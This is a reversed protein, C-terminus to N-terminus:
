RGAGLDVGRLDRRTTIGLKAFLSRLHAEVTRPSIFLEAVIEKSTAGTPRTAADRSGVLVAIPEADIRWSLLGLAQASGQDLWQAHDIM